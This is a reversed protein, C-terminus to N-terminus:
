LDIGLVPTMSRSVCLMIYKGEAQEDPTLVSDRHDPIGATVVAECTGCTGVRCSTAVPVGADDLVDLISRNAPIRHTTGRRTLHVDFSHNAEAVPDKPIFREVHLTNPNWHATGATVADLLAPPGCCFIKTNPRVDALIESLPLLGQENHPRIHVQDAHAALEDRFAMTSRSRGGYHLEWTAQQADVNAIMPIIPTIGIGGAIFIYHDAAALRFHNRPSSVQVIDGVRLQEHVFSSGGRGQQEYLVAVRYRTRDSPDGCLSYPRVFTGARFDIHAGPEWPPLETSNSVLDLAVVGDALPTKAALTLNWETAM